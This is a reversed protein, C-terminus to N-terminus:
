APATVFGLWLGDRARTMGVFLERRELEVRERYAGDAEDPRQMAPGDVLQPLAVHKFELGKARKFTGLRVADSPTGDYDELDLCPVGAGRLVSQCHRLTSHRAALVAVDGRGVGVVQTTRDVWDLLALDHSHLDEAYVRVPHPGQRACEVDRQGLEELGDLDSFRDQSVIANAAALIQETNRYNLRLVSARGAVSIGAEGLSFGGPYVSQQGDGILLLGDPADGVLRHLLRVAVCSLDQVEDVVVSRYPSDLPAKQLQLDALHLVDAYDHVGAQRLRDSYALYLDWVARRQETGIRYRRGVRELDRYQAFSTLGRGKVVHAIEDKWYGPSQRSAGLAGPKGVKSWAHAFADEVGDHDLHVRTGRDRLLGVAFRHISVFDVRDVTAPSMRAYLSQLVAPLTRVFSTYLVRGPRTATLYATRHLGVVTKGTGAPGRIRAPGNLPRRVLRAQDPHLFTMWEEVPTALAAELVAARVDEESLLAFDEETPAPAPPLLPEPVVPRATTPAAPSSMPPFLTMLRTAVTDIAADSLRTGRRMVFALVDHEGVVAVRGVSEHVGKHGALVVVPVVETPALGVDSLEAEALHTLRLLGSLEDTVDCQDRWIRNGAISVDAWCKTDVVLVGGPGLLLLDVNATRSGPWRRDNLQMWGMAALPALRQATRRETDSAVRMRGAVRRELLAEHEHAEARALARRHEDGASAGAPM